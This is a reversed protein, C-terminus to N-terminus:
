NSIALSSELLSQASDWNGGKAYDIATKFVAMEDDTYTQRKDLIDAMKDITESDKEQVAKLMKEAIPRAKASFATAGAGGCGGLFLAVVCIWPAAKKM